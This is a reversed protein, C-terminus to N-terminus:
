IEMREIKRAMDFIFLVGALLVVITVGMVMTLHNNIDAAMNALLMSLLVASLVTISNSKKIFGIRISCLVIGDALFALILTDRYILLLDMIYLGNDVLSLMHGTVAFALFSGYTCAPLAVTIFALLLGTKVWVVIKRDIPYSFLLIACSGSYEKMVYGFGMASALGSFAMLAIAGGVAAIGRYSSFLIESAESGSELHPVWAFIYFLGLLCFCIVLASICYPRINIKKLEMKLLNM